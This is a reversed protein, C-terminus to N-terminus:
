GPLRLDPDRDGRGGGPRRGPEPKCDSRSHRTLRLQQKCRWRCCVPGPERSPQSRCSARNEAVTGSHCSDSLMFIRVGPKNLQAWLAYLEDDVVKATVSVDVEDMEDEKETM